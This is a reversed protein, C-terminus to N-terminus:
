KYELMLREVGHRALLEQIESATKTAAVRTTYNDVTSTPGAM